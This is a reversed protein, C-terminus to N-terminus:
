ETRSLITTLSQLAVDAATSGDCGEGQLNVAFCYTTEGTELFGVFWGSQTGGDPNSTGTKGYLRGGSVSHESLLMADKVARINESAFDWTNSLLGSLLRVQELPSIALSNSWYNGAGGSLDCNGYGIRSYYSALAPLGMQRDLNQFYWNVSDQMASTLTQDHMWEPFPQESGDWQQTSSEPTILGKELAFLSSYIKYTSAPSIREESKEKNYIYYNETQMDYLVFSGDRGGFSEAVDAETWAEDTLHFVPSGSAYASLLPSTGFLLLFILLFIGASKLRQLATAPRYETIEMIRQKTTSASSSIGSLPSAFVGQGAHRAFRLITLGYNMRESIGVHDIVAHDCAIERDKQLQRFGYWILPNFWYLIELVCVLLNLLADKHRCHQLEHLFIFRLEEESSVIDLDQPIIVAPRLWGCSVPNQIDCSAYLKVKQRLSLERVCSSFQRYLDPESEATVLFADRKIKHISLLTAAFYLTVAAMGVIWIIGLIRSLSIGSATVATSFDRIVTGSSSSQVANEATHTVASATTDQTLLNQIWFLFEQPSLQRWPLFPLFLAATFLHWLRYRVPITLHRSSIKRVLLIIGLFMSLLVNCMLFHVPSIM